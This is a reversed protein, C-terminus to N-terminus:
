GKLVAWFTNFIITLDTTFSQKDLYELDMELRRLMKEMTDTYGNYITAESTIGPRTAYLRTYRPDHQLIQDIFYQREPRYGVFSMEGKLVNWLQPMEDLNHRRLWRGIPTFREPATAHNTLQPGEKEADIPMTRFKIIRFPKGGLGIREQTYFAPGPTTLKQILIIILFVPWLCLLGVCAMVVDFIRKSHPLTTSKAPRQYMSLTETPIPQLPSNALLPQQHKGM